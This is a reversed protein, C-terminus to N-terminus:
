EMKKIQFLLIVSCITPILFSKLTWNGAV